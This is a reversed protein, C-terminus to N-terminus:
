LALQQESLRFKDVSDNRKATLAWSSSLSKEKREKTLLMWRIHSFGSLVLQNVQFGSASFQFRMNINLIEGILCLWFSVHSCLHSSSWSSCPAVSLLLDDTRVGSMMVVGDDAYIFLWALCFLVLKFGIDFGPLASFM